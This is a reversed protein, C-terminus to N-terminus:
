SSIVRSIRITQCNLFITGLGFTKGDTVEPMYVSEMVKYQTVYVQESGKAITIVEFSGLILLCPVAPLLFCM